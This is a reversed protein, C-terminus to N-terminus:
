ESGRRWHSEFRDRPQWALLRKAKDNPYKGHPLDANIHLVEFPRPFGPARVAQRMASPVDM